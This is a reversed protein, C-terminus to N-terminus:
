FCYREACAGPADRSARVCNSLSCQESRTCAAGPGLVPRCRRTASDCYFGAACSADFFEQRGQGCASGERGDGTSRCAGDVCALRALSDCRAGVGSAECREGERSVVAYPRCFEVGDIGGAELTCLAGAVCPAGGTCSEGVALPRTCQQPGSARPCYLGEACEALSVTTADIPTTGCPAGEAGPGARRVAVCRELGAERFCQVDDASGARACQIVSECAEGPARRPRCVGPCPRGDGSPGHDCWADGACEETRQCAGGATVAGVFAEGYGHQRVEGFGRRCASAVRDLYRRAGAPDFRTSGAALSVQLDGVDAALLPAVVGRCREVSGAMARFLALEAFPAGCRWHAACIAGALDDAFREVTPGAPGGSGDAVAGDRQPAVKAEPECGGLWAAGAAMVWRKM